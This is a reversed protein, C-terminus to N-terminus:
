VYRKGKWYDLQQYNNGKTLIPVNHRTHRKAKPREEEVEEEKYEIKKGKNKAIASRNKISALFAYEPDICETSERSSGDSNSEHVAEKDNEEDSGSSL